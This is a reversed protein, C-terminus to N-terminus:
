RTGHDSGALKDHVLKGGLTLDLGARDRKVLDSQLLSDITAASFRKDGILWRGGILRQRRYQAIAMLAQRQSRQLAHQPNLVAPNESLPKM